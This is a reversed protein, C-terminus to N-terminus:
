FIDSRLDALFPFARRSQTLAEHDLDAFLLQQGSGAMALTIGAPSVISSLGCYTLSNEAGCYNAYAVYVQNEYARCAVLNQAVFLYPEMNATPVLILDAGHSALYRASEPFEIDYCILMGVKWGAFEFLAPARDSRSFQRKDLEGYLHIKRYNCLSTGSSDVFQAANYLLGEADREPYGYVIAIGTDLAIAAVQQLSDGAPYEALRRVEDAGIAYGTLFMEPCVLLRAGGAKAQRAAAHLRQLNGPVDLPRSPCQLLAMRM